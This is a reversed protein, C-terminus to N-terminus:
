VWVGFRSQVEGVEHAIAGVGEMGAVTIAEGVGLLAREAGDAVAAATGIARTREVAGVAGVPLETRAGAPVAVAGLTLVM